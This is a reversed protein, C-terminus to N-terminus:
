EAKAQKRYKELEQLAKESMDPDFHIHKIKSPIVVKIENAPQEYGPSAINRVEAEEPNVGFFSVYVLGIFSGVKIIPSIVASLAASPEPKSGEQKVTTITTGDDRDEKTVEDAAASADQDQLVEAAEDVITAEVAFEATDYATRRTTKSCLGSLDSGSPPVGEFNM